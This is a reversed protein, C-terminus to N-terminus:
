RITFAGGLGLVVGVPAFNVADGIMGPKDPDRVAVVPKLFPIVADLTIDVAFVRTTVVRLEVALAASVWPSVADTAAEFGRGMAQFAGAASGVCLRPRLRRRQLGFCADLRGAVLGLEVTGAGLPRRGGYGGLVGARLEFWERWGLEIHLQGGGAIGPVMGLWLGGRVSAYARLRGRRPAPAPPQPERRTLMPPRENDVAQPAAPAEIVEYGLTALVSADIAMAIALGIVAHLDSCGPPGQDFPREIVGAPTRVTIVAASRRTPDGDVEVSVGVAIEDSGLWLRVHDALTEASLCTAGPRVQLAAQLSRTTPTPARGPSADPM